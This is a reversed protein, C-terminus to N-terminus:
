TCAMIGHKELNHLANNFNLNKLYNKSYNYNFNFEKNNIVFM